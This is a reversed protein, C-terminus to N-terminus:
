VLVQARSLSSRAPLNGSGALMQVERMCHPALRSTLMKWAVCDEALPEQRARDQTLFNGGLSTLSGSRGVGCLHVGGAAGCTLARVEENSRAAPKSGRPLRKPPRGRRFPMIGRRRGHWRMTTMRRCGGRADRMSRSNEKKGLLWPGCACATTRPKAFM